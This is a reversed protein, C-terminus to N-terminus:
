SMEIAERRQSRNVESNQQQRSEKSKDFKKWTEKSLNHCLHKGVVWLSVWLGFQCGCGLNVGMIRLAGRWDVNVEIVWM